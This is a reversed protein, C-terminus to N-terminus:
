IGLVRCIKSVVRSDYHGRGAEYDAIVSNKENVKLALDKQTMNKGMRAKQMKGAFEFDIIKIKPIEEKDVNVKPSKKVIKKPTSRKVFKKLVISKFDQHSM